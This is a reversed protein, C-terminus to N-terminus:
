RSPISLSISTDADRYDVTDTRQDTVVLLFLISYLDTDDSLEEIMLLIMMTKTMTTLIMM